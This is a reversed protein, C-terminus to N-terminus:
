MDLPPIWVFSLAFALICIIAVVLVPPRSLGSLFTFLQIFLFKYIKLDSEKTSCFTHRKARCEVYVNIKKPDSEKTSCFTHRKARCEVYVNIKKTHTFFM